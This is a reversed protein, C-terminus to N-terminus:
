TKKSKGRPGASQFVSAVAAADGGELTLRPIRYTTAGLTLELNDLAATAAAAPLSGALVLLPFVMVIMAQKSFRSLGERIDYRTM